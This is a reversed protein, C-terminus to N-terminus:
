IIIFEVKDADKWEYVPVYYSLPYIGDTKSINKKKEESTSMVSGIMAWLYYQRLYIYM